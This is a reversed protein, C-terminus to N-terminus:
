VVKLLIVVRLIAADVDDSSGANLFIFLAGALFNGLKDRDSLGV